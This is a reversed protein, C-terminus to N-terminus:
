KALKWQEELVEVIQKGDRFRGDIIMQEDVLKPIKGRGLSGYLNTYKEVQQIPETSNDALGIGAEGVLERVKNRANEVSPPSEPEFLWHHFEAFKARDMRWVAVALRAYICAYAHPPDSTPAAFSNCKGNMPCPLVLVALREGFHERAEELQFHQKRCHTCTYDFLEVIVHEADPSGLIPHEYADFTMATNRLRLVRSLPPKQATHSSNHLSDGTPMPVANAAAAAEIAHVDASNAAQSEDGGAAALRSDDRDIRFTPPEYVLQGGILVGILVVSIGAAARNPIAAPEREGRCAFYATSWATAALLLGCTHTALCPWCLSGIELVQLGVFWVAALAAAATLLLV